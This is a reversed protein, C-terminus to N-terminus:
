AAALETLQQPLLKEIEEEDGAAVEVTSSASSRVLELATETWDDAKTVVAVRYWDGFPTKELDYAMFGFGRAQEMPNDSPRVVKVGIPNAIREGTPFSAFDFTHQIKIGSVKVRERIENPYPADWMRMARGVRHLVPQEEFSPKHGLVHWTGLVACQGIAMVATNLDAASCGMRFTGQAFTAGYRDALEELGGLRLDTIHIGQAFLEAATKGGDHVVFYDPMKQEVFVSALRDDLTRHPLTLVCHDRVEAVTISNGLYELLTSKLLQCKTAM